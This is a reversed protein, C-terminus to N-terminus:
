ALPRLRGCTGQRHPCEVVARLDREQEFPLVIGLVIAERGSRKAISHCDAKGKAIRGREEAHSLEIMVDVNPMPFSIPLAIDITPGCPAGIFLSFPDPCKLHDRAADGRYLVEDAPSEARQGRLFLLTSHLALRRPFIPDPM